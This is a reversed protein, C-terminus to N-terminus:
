QKVIKITHSSSDDKYSFFYVGSTLDSIDISMETKEVAINRLLRGTVDLISLSANPQLNEITIFVNDKAPNPFVTFGSTQAINQVDAPKFAYSNGSLKYMLQGANSTNTYGTYWITLLDDGSNSSSSIAMVADQYSAHFGPQLLQSNNVQYADTIDLSYPGGTIPANKVYFDGKFTNAYTTYTSYYGTSFYTEGAKGSGTPDMDEGVGAVCPSFVENNWGVPLVHVTAQDSWSRLYTHPNLGSIASCVARWTASGQKITGLAQAEIRPVGVLALNVPNIRFGVGTLGTGIFGVESVVWKGTTPDIYTIFAVKEDCGSCPNKITMAGVDPTIGEPEAAANPTIQYRTFASPNSLDGIAAMIYNVNTNPDFENWVAIFEHLAHYAGVMMADDGFLDIHPKGAIRGNSIDNLTVPPSLPSVTPPSLVGVGNLNVTVLQVEQNTAYVVGAIYNNMGLMLDDGIVVDPDSAPLQIARDRDHSPFNMALGGTYYFHVTVLQEPPLLLNCPLGVVPDPNPDLILRNVVDATVAMLKHGGTGPVEMMDCNVTAASIADVDMICPKRREDHLDVPQDLLSAPIIQADTNNGCLLLLATAIGAFSKLITREKM